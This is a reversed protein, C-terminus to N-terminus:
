KTSQFSTVTTATVRSRVFLVAWFENKKKRNLLNKRGQVIIPSCNIENKLEGFNRRVAGKSNVLRLIRSIQVTRPVRRNFSLRCREARILTSNFAPRYWSSLTDHM